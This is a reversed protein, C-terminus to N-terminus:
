AGAQLELCTGAPLCGTSALQLCIPESRSAANRPGQRIVSALLGGAPWTACRLPTMRFSMSPQPQIQHSSM